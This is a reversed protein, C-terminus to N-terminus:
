TYSSTGGKLTRSSTEANPILDYKKCVKYCIFKLRECAIEDKSAENDDEQPSQSIQSVHISVSSSSSITISSSLHPIGTFQLADPKSFSTSVETLGEADTASQYFYNFFSM